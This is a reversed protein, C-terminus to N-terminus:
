AAAALERGLNRALQRELDLADNIAPRDIDPYLEYIKAAPLGADALAGLAESELRTAQVHPSGGLKGPVIRLHPRPRMLDPGRGDETDFPALVDLVGSGDLARQSDVARELSPETALFVKGRHDIRVAPGGEESWLALDLEALKKLALRVSPMTSAPIEQADEGPKPHRLWYIVRLEMLDAYSWLKTRTQSVSPVLVDNRAWWHVTTLPVGSLAAARDATYTGQNSLM